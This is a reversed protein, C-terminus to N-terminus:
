YENIRGCNECVTYQKKGRSERGHLPKGCHECKWNKMGFAMGFIIIFFAIAACWAYFPQLFINEDDEAWQRLIMLWIFLVAGSVIYTLTRRWVSKLSQGTPKLEDPPKVFIDATTVPAQAVDSGAAAPQGSAPRFTTERFVAVTFAIVFTIIEFSIGTVGCQRLVVIWM